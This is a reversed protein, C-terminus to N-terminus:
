TATAWGARNPPFLSGEKWRAYMKKLNYVTLLFSWEARVKRLGRVTWRRFREHEKLQAFVLEILEKRRRLHQQHLPNRHRQQQRQIAQYQPNLKVLRGRKNTCCQARVPCSAADRCQYVQVEYGHQVKKQLYPLRVKQPCVMVNAEADYTFHSAAFPDDQEQLSRPLAVTAEFGHAEMRGLEASSAYGADAVTDAAVAGMTSTVEQLMPVLLDFDNQQAVVTEAVVIGHSADVVAQANFGFAREPGAQQVRAEPELPHHHTVQRRELERLKVAILARRQQADILHDPLRPPEADTQESQEIERMGNEISADLQALARQLSAQYWGTRSSSRAKIRTGDVAHLVMGVMGADAALRVVTTFLGKLQSRHESFFRWLTNHDPTHRGTLWLLAVHDRCAQEVRRSSRIRMLYAYLWVKLLLDASYSPRGEVSERVRFGLGPLDIADVVDRIFRAVHDAPVYDELAPPFLLQESYDARLELLM